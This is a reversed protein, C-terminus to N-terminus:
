WYVNVSRCPPESYCWHVFILKDVFQVLNEDRLQAHVFTLLVWVKLPFGFTTTIHAACPTAIIPAEVSVSSWQVTMIKAKSHKLDQM